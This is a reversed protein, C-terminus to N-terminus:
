HIAQLPPMLIIFIVLLAGRVALLVGHATPINVRLNQMYNMRDVILTLVRLLHFRNTLLPHLVLYVMPQEQGEELPVM